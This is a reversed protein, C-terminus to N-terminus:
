RNLIEKLIEEMLAHFSKSNDDFERIVELEPQNGSQSWM